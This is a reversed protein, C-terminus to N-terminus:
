MYLWVIDLDLKYIQTQVYFEYKVSDKVAAEQQLFM